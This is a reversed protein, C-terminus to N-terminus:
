GSFTLEEWAKADSTIGATATRRLSKVLSVSTVNFHSTRCRWTRQPFTSVFLVFSFRLVGTVANHKLARNVYITVKLTLYM